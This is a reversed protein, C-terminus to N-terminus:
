DGFDVRHLAAGQQRLWDRSRRWDPRLREVVAWFAASHNMHVLHAVEHAAVYDAVHPPAMVLRWSYMLAGEASCSGWRSRTDRLTIRSYRRGLALAHRNSAETLQRRAEERLWATLAKPRGRPIYLVSGERRPSRLDAPVIRLTAGQFPVGEACDQVPAVQALQARIWDLRSKAFAEGTGRPLPKPLTLSVRGDLRSVRLSIRRARASRRLQVTIPPDGLRFTEM